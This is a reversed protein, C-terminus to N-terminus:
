KLLTEQYVQGYNISVVNKNKMYCERATYLNEGSVLNRQRSWWLLCASVTDIIPRKASPAMQLSTSSIFAAPLYKYNIIPGNPAMFRRLPAAIINSILYEFMQLCLAYLQSWMNQNRFANIEWVPILIIANPEFLAVM